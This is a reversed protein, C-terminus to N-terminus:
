EGQKSDAEASSDEQGTLGTRTPAPAKADPSDASESRTPLGQQAVLDMARDVPM